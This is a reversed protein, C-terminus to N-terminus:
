PANPGVDKPTLPGRLVPTTAVEDAGVDPQQRPQGDIDDSSPAAGVAANIAASGPGLHYRGSGDLQLKPDVQRFGAAPIDGPTLGGWVINGEFTSDLFPDPQAFASGTTGVVINNAIHINSPAIGGARTQGTIPANVLTNFSLEVNAPAIYAGGAVGDGIMIRGGELYNNFIKHNAGFVRIGPTNFFFNGEVVDNKAYRLTFTGNTCDRFTNFRYWGGKSGGGEKVSIIEGNVHIQELLNHEVRPLTAFVRIAEGGNPADYTNNFFYNDHALPRLTGKVDEDLVLMAGSTSKNTFANFSAENDTGGIVMENGAGPMELSNRTILVNHTNPAVVVGGTNTLRFGRITVFAAPANVLIGGNGTITAGGVTDATITIRQTATGVRDVTIPATVTYNGNALVVCDGPMAAAIASTMQGISTVAMRRGCVLPGGNSVVDPHPGTDPSEPAMDPAAGDMPHDPRLDAGADLSGGPGTADGVGGEDGTGGAGAKGGVGANGADGGDGGNGGNGRSPYGASSPACGAWALWLTSSLCCRRFRSM